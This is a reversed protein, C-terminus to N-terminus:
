RRFKLVSEGESIEDGVSVLIEEVVGEREAIIKNQMKMAELVLLETGSKVKDGVAVQITTILGSIPATVTNADSKRGPKNPSLKSKEKDLTQLSGSLEREVLYVKDNIEFSVGNSYTKILNVNLSKGNISIKM